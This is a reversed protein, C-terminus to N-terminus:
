WIVKIGHYKKYAVMMLVLIGCCGSFNIAENFWTAKMPAQHPQTLLLISLAVLAVAVVAVRITRSDKKVIPPAVPRSLRELVFVQHPISRRTRKGM